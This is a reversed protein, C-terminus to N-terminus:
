SLRSQNPSGNEGLQRPFQGALAPMDHSILDNSM